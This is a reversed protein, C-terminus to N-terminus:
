SAGYQLRERRATWQAAVTFRMAFACLAPLWMAMVLGMVAGIWARIMVPRGALLREAMLEGCAVFAALWIIGVM